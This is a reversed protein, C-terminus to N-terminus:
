QSEEARAEICRCYLRVAAPTGRGLEGTVPSAGDSTLLVAVLVETEEVVREVALLVVEDSEKGGIVVTTVTLGVLLLWVDGPPAAVPPM